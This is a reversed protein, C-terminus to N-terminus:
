LVVLSLYKKIMVMLQDRKIPKPLYDICGAEICKERDASLAYATTAIIPLQPRRAKIIRTATIGDMEPMKIDMLVLSIHKNKQCHEVAELGNVATIINIGTPRLVTQLYFLNIEEDEALLITKDKWSVEAIEKEINIKRSLEIPSTILPVMFTFTSGNGPSSDVRITGGLMEVYSKALSLGLGTGGYKRSNSLEAQRFRDFIAEHLSSDIGIGTDSVIFILQEDNKDVSIEVTGNETFKLANGIINNLIQRLKTPDSSISASDISIKNNMVLKLNKQSAQLEFDSNIEELLNNLNFVEHHIVEQRAEIKSIDVIDTIIHLLQHTAHNITTLYKEKNAVDLDPDNLLESFGLIANMPTRIEHSMNALFASKLQDSEVAKEKAMLLEEDAIKRVTIDRIISTFFRDTSTHWEAMSVEIPFIEGNKRKGHFEVTKGIVHPLYGQHIRNFGALHLELYNDPILIAISQGIIEDEQYGFTKIAGQNWGVIIGADDATIISDVASDAVARYQEESQKLEEQARKLESIDQLVSRSHIINGQDDRVATSNILVPIKGGLATILDAESNKIEGVEQFIQFNKIATELCDPHYRSIISEGIVESRKFGTKRMLTENCEIVKGTLYNVSMFMAPANDYLDQYKQENRKLEQTREEVMEELTENLTQLEEQTNLLERNRIVAAEYTSILLTLMQQQDATIFRRKGAFMIEVGIRVRETKHLKRTAIIQEVHSLLYDVPYPKTIFNDAGCELGEIVDEPNSLSTLLIVPIEENLHQNKVRRCFEYGDMEPMVIDTIIVKPEYQELVSLAHLGNNAGIVSYHHKELLYILQEAQTPSDEVILIDIKEKVKVPREDM